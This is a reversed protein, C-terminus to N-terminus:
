LYNSKGDRCIFRIMLFLRLGQRALQLDCINHFIPLNANSTSDLSIGASAGGTNTSGPISNGNELESGCLFDIIYEGFLVPFERADNLEAVNVKPDDLFKSNWTM